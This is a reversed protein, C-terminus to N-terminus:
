GAAPIAVGHAAVASLLATPRQAVAGDHVLEFACGLARSGGDAHESDGIMLAQEPPVGLRDFAARFIRPDPKIVGVEYSLAWAGVHGTLGHLALVERLDFAINSVVGVPIGLAALGSLVTATDPFPVWSHPDLIRAYLKEAHGPVRLGSERLVALYAQRHKAPDLDRQEWAIRDEDSLDAPMGVPQTMRRILDAQADVHLPRGQEDHLGAFWEDRAEFRFLTGSFDVLVAGPVASEVAM